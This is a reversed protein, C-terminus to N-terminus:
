YIEYIQFNDDTGGGGGAKDEKSYLVGIVEIEDIKPLASDIEIQENM